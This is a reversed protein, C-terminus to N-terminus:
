RGPVFKSSDSKDTINAAALTASTTVIPAPPVARTPPFPAGVAWGVAFFKARLSGKFLSTQRIAESFRAITPLPPRIFIRRGLRISANLRIVLMPLAVIGFSGVIFRLLVSKPSPPFM